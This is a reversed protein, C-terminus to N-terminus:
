RFSLAGMKHRIIYRLVANPYFSMEHYPMRNRYRPATGGHSHTEIIAFYGRGCGTIRTSQANPFVRAIGRLKVSGCVSLFVHIRAQAQTLLVGGGVGGGYFYRNRHIVGLALGSACIHRRIVNSILSDDFALCLHALLRTRQSQAINRKPAPHSADYYIYLFCKNKTRDPSDETKVIHCVTGQEEWQSSTQKQSSQRSALAGGM